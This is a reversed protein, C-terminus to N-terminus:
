DAEDDIGKAVAETRSRAGLKTLIHHVHVKTTSESIFLAGAIQRNSRGTALLEFVEIERPTLLAKGGPRRREPHVGVSQAISYDNSEDVMGRLESDTMFEAAAKLLPPWSRYTAVLYHRNGTSRMTEVAHEVMAASTGDARRVAVLARVWTSLTKVDVDTTRGDAADLADLALTDQGLCAHALGRVADLESAASTTSRSGADIDIVAIAEAASAQALLLLGRFTVCSLQAHSNNNQTSYAYAKQLMADATRFHRLGYEAEARHLWAYPMAFVLKSVSAEELQRHSM